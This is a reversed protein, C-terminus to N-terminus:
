PILVVSGSTKRSELAEHAEAARELPLRRDIRVRVAGSRIKEFLATASALLEARTAVYDGLKPRTVYLSGKQTLTLLDLPDPKGSANGFAVLMGRPALSDLSAALTAKGVSDFVVPVGKGDTLERVREAVNERTTVITHEAGHERALAAKDDSGVAGIVRAGISRLWQCAILGVGGAAAHWLVTEGARVPRTRCVLYEVTMGKLLAAAAVEDPIDDPVPVLQEARVIRAEAYAGNGASAYAVRTGIALEVGDGVADVVGAAESGLVAPLPLPYLGSRHYTDIFNVGVATHRVLAEGPKPAGLEISGLKMVERGGTREIVIARM